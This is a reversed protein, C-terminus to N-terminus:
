KSIFENIGIPQPIDLRQKLVLHKGDTIELVAVSDEFLNACIITNDTIIFDRPHNGHCSDITKPILEEDSCEFCAISDHGRNSVYLHGKDIRIAAPYNEGEYDVGFLTDYDKLYELVGDSYRYVSVTSSLENACYLLKGSPSFVTHRPGAGAPTNIVSIETLNKDYTFIKDIGLDCVVVYKGDPTPTASHTHPENQRTPNPGRGEHQVVACGIACVNGTPYNSVILTDGLSAIHCGGNGHSTIPESPSTLAGDETIKYTIAASKSTPDSIDINNIVVHMLNGSVEAYRPKPIPTFDIPVLVGSSLGYRYIGGDEKCSLIYINKM